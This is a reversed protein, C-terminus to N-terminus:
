FALLGNIQKYKYVFIFTGVYFKQKDHQIFEIYMKDQQLFQSM